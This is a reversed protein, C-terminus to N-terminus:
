STSSQLSTMFRAFSHSAKVSLAIADDLNGRRVAVIARRYSVLALFWPCRGLVSAAEDLLREALATDGSALAVKALGNLSNGLGWPITLARFGAVSHLFRGHAATTNGLAHEVHGLLHEAHAVMHSDGADEALALARGLATRARGLEGLSVM